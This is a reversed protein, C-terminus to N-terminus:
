YEFRLGARYYRGIVDYLTTNTQLGFPNTTTAIPPDKDFVNNVRGFLELHAGGVKFKYTVGLDLYSVAPVHNNDVTLPGTPTDFFSTQLVGSSTWRWTAQLTVPGQLYSFQTNVRWYPTAGGNQGANEHVVGLGNDQSNSVIRTALTRIAFAADWGSFWDSLNKRYSAEIDYGKERFAALNAPANILKVVTDPVAVGGVFGPGRTVFKCYEPHVGSFCDNVVQQNGVPAIGGQLSINYYDFSVSFGSFWSPQYVAGVGWADSKEPVLFPNGSNASPFAGILGNGYKPDLINPQQQTGGGLYLDGLSPARIDRSRTGRFLLDEVPRYNLGAKWTVVTGSTSYDTVRVAGNFDLAKAFSYDKALPIVTEAFAEKVDYSGNTPAYDASLWANAKAIDDIFPTKISEKRYGMGAAVSVPGAWLSFPEGTVAAEAVQQVIEVHQEATGTFYAVAQPTAVGTGFINLPVCAPNVAFSRCVPSGNPGTIVDIAQMFRATYLNNELQDKLNSKGYQYYANWNWSHFVKGEFGGTLEKTERIVRQHYPGLDTSDLGYSFTTAGAARLAAAVSAPIYPNAVNMTLNGLFRVRPGGGGEARSYGNIAQVFVHLDDSIDYGLRGFFSSSEVKATLAETYFVDGPQGGVMVQGVIPSGYAFQTVTGGPGFATGRLPGATIVGGASALAPYVKARTLLAPINPTAAQSVYAPNTIQRVSDYWTRTKPDIGEIGDVSNFSGSLLLHLRNNMFRGGYTLSGSREGDDNRSSVGGQISGKLGTYDKDLVFNVVGAVADSGYAASAGGTVVDVRKILESPLNNADTTNQGVSSTPVVRRGDLLVLTRQAGLGRLNFVNQGSQGLSIQVVGTQPTSSGQLQPLQNVVDAINPMATLHIDEVSMVTTPIPATFGDRVIRSGTVVIEGVAEAPAAAQAQATQAVQAPPASAPAQAYAAQAGAASAALALATAGGFLSLKYSQGM